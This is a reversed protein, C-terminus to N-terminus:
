SLHSIFLVTLFNQIFYCCKQKFLIFILLFFKLSKLDQFSFIKLRLDSFSKHKFQISDNEWEGDSFCGAFCDALWGAWGADSLM